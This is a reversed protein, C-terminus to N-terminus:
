FTTGINFRFSEVIDTDKKSLAESFSLSLPGIPTWWDLGIGISSRIKNNDLSNNYDVGWLTAADFFIVFDTSQNNPLIQPLTSNFNISSFYNGGIFDSGDKPGVKGVEFGRLRKGPIYLRESLKINDGSISTASGFNFAFSAINSDYFEKYVEYSYENTFTNTKSLLPIDTSYISRFGDSTQFKQNRKDYILAIKFFTDWYNGKQTQRLSTASSSTEIKEYYSSTGINLNLDNLYEFGTGFSFGTKNTKYGFTSLKDTESIELSIYGSNDTNYINPNTIGVLGKVSSENIELNSNFTIGKGLYNNEKVGFIFTAGSTGFGAGAMIEGTPKEELYINIVKDNFEDTLIETEIDSFYNLSKLNNITKSFLLENYSDGEDIEFQNRIVNERTINNGFINIKKIYFTDTKELIFKLNIKDSLVEESVYAKISVHEESLTIKDIENLIEQIRNLSYPKKKLNNFVKDLSNFNSLTFDNPIQISLDNFFIKDMAEINFILEFEDDSTFKAFSSNIKVNYYGNNLYFNRLLREDLNILDENLYKKGTIIKWFKYEESAILNKLKNDKYIKNGLFTIKKIKAKNGIDISYNVNVKNNEFSEILVDVKAFYYGNTKLNNLIISKDTEILYENYSSREKLNLNSTIKELLNTSKVGEYTLKQIVPNEILNIYINGNEFKVSIDKFYNTEYLNKLIDDLIKEDVYDFNDIKSYVIITEKSIRENGTIITNKSLKDALLNETSLIVFLFFIIQLKLFRM